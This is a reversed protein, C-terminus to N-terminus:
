NIPINVGKNYMYANLYIYIKKFIKGLIKRSESMRQENAKTTLELSIKECSVVLSTRKEIYM